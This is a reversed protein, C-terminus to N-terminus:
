KGIDSEFKDLLTELKPQGVVESLGNDSPNEDQNQAVALELINLLLNIRKIFEKRIQRLDNRGLTDISDLALLKRTLMEDLFKYEKSNENGKFDDVQKELDHFDDMIQHLKVGQIDEINKETANKLPVSSKPDSDHYQAEFIPNNNNPSESLSHPLIQARMDKKM